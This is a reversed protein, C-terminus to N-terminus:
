PGLRQSVWQHDEPNLEPVVNRRYDLTYDYGGREYTEEFAKQLDVVVDPVDPDLPIPIVPLKDRLSWSYVAAHSRDGHRMIFAHYDLEPLPEKTPLRRGGRLLDIEVINTLARLYNARKALYQTQGGKNDKNTPSLLEIVTVVRRDDRTRITLFKQSVEYPEPVTLIRPELTVTASSHESGNAPPGVESFWVDPVFHEAVEDDSALFDSREINVVYEPRVQPILQARIVPILDAHFDPWRQSEIFPDIGPFPSPM